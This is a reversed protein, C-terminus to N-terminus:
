CTCAGSNRTLRTTFELLAPPLRDRQDHSSLPVVMSRRMTAEMLVLLPVPHTLEVAAVGLVEPMLRGPAM